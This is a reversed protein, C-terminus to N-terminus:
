KQAGGTEIRGYMHGGASGVHSWTGAYQDGHFFVRATFTGMGPITTDTMVIVPTDDVFKMRVVIPLTLGTEGIRANFRWQDEGVKDVSYIDYRDATARDERGAITFRGVLAAGNMREVFAREVAPLTAPDMAEGMATRAVVWGAGFALLVVVIVAIWGFIRGGRAVVIV